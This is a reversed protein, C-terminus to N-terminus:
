EKNKYSEPKACYSRANLRISSKKYEDMRGEYNKFMSGWARAYCECYDKPRINFYSFGTGTMCKSFEMGTTEIINRCYKQSIEIVLANQSPIPGRKIRFDLFKAALCECDNQNKLDNYGNCWEYVSLAEEMQQETVDELGLEEINSIVGKKSDMLCTNINEKMIAEVSATEGLKMRTELFSAAACKCDKQRNMTENNICSEYFRQAEEIQADTAITYPDDSVESKPATTPQRDEPFAVDASQSYATESISLLSLAVLAFVLFLTRM